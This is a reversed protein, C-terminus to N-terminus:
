LGERYSWRHANSMFLFSLLFSTRLSASCVPPFFLAPPLPHLSHLPSSLTPRVLFQLEDRVGCPLVTCTFEDTRVCPFRGSFCLTKAPVLIGNEKTFTSTRVEMIRRSWPASIDFVSYAYVCVCVRARARACVCTVLVCARM